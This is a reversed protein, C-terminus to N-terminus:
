YAIVDQQKKVRYDINDYFFDKNGCFYMKKEIGGFIKFLFIECSLSRGIEVIGVKAEM